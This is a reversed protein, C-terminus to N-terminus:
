TVLYQTFQKMGMIGPSEDLTHADFIPVVYLELVTVAGIESFPTVNEAAHTLLRWIANEITTWSLIFWVRVGTVILEVADDQLEDLQEDLQEHELM